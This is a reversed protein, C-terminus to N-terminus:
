LSKGQPRGRRRAMNPQTTGLVRKMEDLVERDLQRVVHGRAAQRSRSPAETRLRQNVRREREDDYSSRWLRWAVAAVDRPEIQAHFWLSGFPGLRALRRLRSAADREVTGRPFAIERRARVTLPADDLGWKATFEDLLEQLLQGTKWVRELKEATPPPTTYSDIAPMDDITELDGNLVRRLFDSHWHSLGVVVNKADGPDLLAPIPTQLVESLAVLEVATVKRRGTEVLAVTSQTWAVGVLEMELAL